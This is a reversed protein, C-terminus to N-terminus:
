HKGPLPVFRAEGSWKDEPTVDLLTDPLRSVAGPVCAVRLHVSIM